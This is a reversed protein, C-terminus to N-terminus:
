NGFIALLYSSDSLEPETGAIENASTLVASLLFVGLFLYNLIGDPREQKLVQHAGLGVIPILFEYCRMLVRDTHDVGKTQLHTGFASIVIM